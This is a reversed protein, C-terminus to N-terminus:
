VACTAYPDNVAEGSRQPRPRFVRRLPWPLRADEPANLGVVAAEAFDKLLDNLGRSCFINREFFHSGIALRSGKRCM